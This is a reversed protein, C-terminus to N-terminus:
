KGKQSERAIEDAKSGVYRYVKVLMKGEIEVYKRSTDGKPDINFTAVKTINKVSALRDLFILLQVYVGKFTLEVNQEVYLNRNESNTPRISNVKIGVRKAETVVTKIFAPIDLSESLTAKMEALEFALERIAEKRLQLQKEFAEAEKIKKELAKNQKQATELETKKVKLPSSESEYFDYYSFAIFGLGLLLLLTSPIRNFFNLIKESTIM